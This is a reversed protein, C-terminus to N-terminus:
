RYLIYTSIHRCAMCPVVDWHDWGDDVGGGHPKRESFVIWTLKM